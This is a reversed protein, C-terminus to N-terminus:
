KGIIFVDEEDDKMSNTLTRRETKRKHRFHLKLVLLEILLIMVAFVVKGVLDKSVFVDVSFLLFFVGAISIILSHYYISIGDMLEFFLRFSSQNDSRSIQLQEKLIKIEKSITRQLKTTTKYDPAVMWRDLLLDLEDSALWRYTAIVSLSEVRFTEDSSNFYQTILTQLPFLLLRLRELDIGRLEKQKIRQIQVVYLTFRWFIIIIISIVLVRFDSKNQVEALMTQVFNLNM